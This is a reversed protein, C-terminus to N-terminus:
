EIFEYVDCDIVFYMTTKGNCYEAMYYCESISSDVAEVYIIDEIYDNDPVSNEDPTRENEVM